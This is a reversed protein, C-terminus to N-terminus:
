FSEFNGVASSFLTQFDSTWFFATSVFLYFVSYLYCFILHHKEKVWPLLYVIFQAFSAFVGKTENIKRHIPTADTTRAAWRINKSQYSSFLLFSVSAQCFCLIILLFGRSRCFLYYLKEYAVM